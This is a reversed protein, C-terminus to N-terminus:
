GNALMWKGDSGKNANMQGLVKLIARELAEASKQRFQPSTIRARDYSNSLYAIEAIVAPMKTRHLVSLNPRNIIGNDTTGLTKILEEQVARAFKEGDMTDPYTKEPLCYLTETGRYGSNDPMNNNHVSIFLAAGINNAIESRKRLDVSADDTRTYIVKIGANELLKGLRLSVDLNLNKEYIDGYCTGLDEGGHGPDIVVIVERPETNDIKVIGNIENQSYTNSQGSLKDNDSYAAKDRMSKDVFVYAMFTGALIVSIVVLFLKINLRGNMDTKSVM